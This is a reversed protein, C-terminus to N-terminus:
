VRVQLSALINALAQGMTDHMHAALREVPVRKMTAQLLIHSGGRQLVVHLAACRLCGQWLCLRETALRTVWASRGASMISQSVNVCPWDMGPGQRVEYCGLSWLAEAVAAAAQPEVAGSYPCHVVVSVYSCPLQLM